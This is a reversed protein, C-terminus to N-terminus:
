AAQEGLDSAKQIAAEIIEDELSVPRMRCRNQMVNFVAASRTADATFFWRIPNDRFEMWLETTPFITEPVDHRDVGHASKCLDKFKHMTLEPQIVLGIPDFSTGDGSGDKNVLRCDIIEVEANEAPYADEPLCNIKAPRGPTVDAIVNLVNDEGFYTQFEITKM